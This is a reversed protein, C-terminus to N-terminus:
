VTTMCNAPYLKEDSFCIMFTDPNKITYKSSQGFPNMSEKAKMHNLKLQIFLFCNM